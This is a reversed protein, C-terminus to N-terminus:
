LNKITYEFSNSNISILIAKEFNSILACNTIVYIM